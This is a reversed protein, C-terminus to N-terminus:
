SEPKATKRAGRGAEPRRQRDAPAAADWFPADHRYGLASPSAPTSRYAQLPMSAPTARYALLEDATMPM